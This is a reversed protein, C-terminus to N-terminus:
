KRLTQEENQNNRDFAMRLKINNTDKEVSHGLIIFGHKKYFNVANVNKEYVDLTLQEYNEKAYNILKSGYGKSILNPKIFIGAIYGEQIGIFGKIGHDDIVNVDANVIHEKVYELNSLWYDEDIFEHGKINSKLWIEMIEDLEILEMKRIM